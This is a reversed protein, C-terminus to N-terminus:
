YFSRDKDSTNRSDEHADVLWDVFTLITDEFSIWQKAQPYFYFPM